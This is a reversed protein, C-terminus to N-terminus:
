VQKACGDHCPVACWTIGTANCLCVCQEARMAAQKREALTNNVMNLVWDGQKWALTDISSSGGLAKRHVAPSAQLLTARENDLTLVLKSAIDVRGWSSLANTLAQHEAFSNQKDVVEGYVINMLHRGLVTNQVLFVDRCMTTRGTHSLICAHM